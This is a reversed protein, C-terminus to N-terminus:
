KEDSPVVKQLDDAREFNEESRVVENKVEVDEAREFNDENRVVENKVDIDDARQFEDDEKAQSKSELAQKM